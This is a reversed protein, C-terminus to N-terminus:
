QATMLIFIVKKFLSRSCYITIFEIDRFLQSSLTMQKYVNGVFKVDDFSLCFILLKTGISSIRIDFLPYRFCFLFKM